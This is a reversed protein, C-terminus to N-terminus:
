RKEPGEGKSDHNEGKPWVPSVLETRWIPGGMFFIQESKVFTPADGEIIWVHVDPPQKGLLPAVLGAVGGIEIKIDFHIAERRLGVLSFPDKGQSHVSLKVLRPKPAAVVMSVEAQPAEAPLNKLLTLVLGNALDPPLKMHENAVKEKGDDDTYQVKVEGSSPNITLDSAHQFSPGKQVLHYSILRFYRRQSFIATEDQLSGDKFHYVLRSEVQNGRVVETLDGEAIAKGELTSLVLFGHTLGEKYRVAVPSASATFGSLICAFTLLTVLPHSRVFWVELTLAVEKSAFLPARTQAKAALGPRSAM